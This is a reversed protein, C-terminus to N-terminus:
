NYGILKDLRRGRCAGCRHEAVSSTRILGDTATNRRQRRRSAIELNLQQQNYLELENACCAFLCRLHIFLAAYRM